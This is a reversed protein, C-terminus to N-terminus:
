EHERADLRTVWLGRPSMVLRPQGGKMPESFEEVPRCTVIQEGRVVHGKPTVVTKRQVLLHRDFARVGGFRAGCYSCQTKPM